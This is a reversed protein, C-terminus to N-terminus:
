ASKNQEEIYKDYYMWILKEDTIPHKGAFKQKGKCCQCIYSKSLNYKRGANAISDFIEKTNLCIILKSKNKTNNIVQEKPNYDCWNLKAGQKLYRTVTSRNIDLINTIIKTNQIDEKWLRCSEKVLSNLAYKHCELWNIQNLNIIKSLKSNLINNKIYELESKICDIRIVEIGHEKAMIDKYDDIAKTEEPTKNSLKDKNGHGLGGDMELIYKKSDVKFYNDYRKPKIWDPSYEYKYYINNIINLQKILCRAFKNPYSIGDGCEPCVFGNRELNNFTISKEYSCDPCIMPRIIGSNPYYKHADEESKLYKILDPRKTFIFKCQNCEISGEHKRSIFNSISKQESKHEPYILCKFWYGKGNFGNSKYTIDKPTIIKGYEDINLDYDWRDLIDERNNDTCWQEFSKGKKLKTKRTKEKTFLKMACKQCYYKDNHLSNLYNRWEIKSKKNCNDCSVKIKKGSGEPLDLINIKMITGKSVCLRGRNDIRRPIKYQKNEYYTINSSHLNIEIEQPLILGM